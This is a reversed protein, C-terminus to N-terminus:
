DSDINTEDKEMEVAFNENNILSTAWNSPASYKVLTQAAEM